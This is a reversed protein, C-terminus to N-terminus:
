PFKCTLGVLTGAAEPCRLDRGRRPSDAPGAASAARSRGTRAAGRCKPGRGRRPRRLQFTRDALPRVMRVM